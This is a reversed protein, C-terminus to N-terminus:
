NAEIQKLALEYNRSPITGIRDPTQGTIARVIRRVHDHCNEIFLRYGDQREGAATTGAIYLGPVNTEMTEPNFVPVQRDGELKIGALNYLKMDARFGTSLLVFDTPHIIPEAETLQGNKIGRLVVETPTIKVPVTEPYFIINGNDIQAILDPRIHDKVRQNFMAQRYSIAVTAGARWCRLAAEAASNRGGVIFIKRRFYTHPDDFYHSVHPLDEGPINLRNPGDMDGKAIVVRRAQYQHRGALTETCLRFGAEVPQLDIVKEYTNVQLDFQEVIARLYALYDEGTIRGQHNNQIPVGAIAVRESTSFFNTNRPWWTMTYGIQQADFHLYPVGARKLAVALELGIPGAGIIALETESPHPHGNSNM